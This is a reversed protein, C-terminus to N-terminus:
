QVKRINRPPLWPSLNWSIRPGSLKMVIEKAVKPPKNIDAWPMQHITLSHSAVHLRIKQASIGALKTIELQIYSIRVLFKAKLAVEEFSSASLMVKTNATHTCSKNKRM